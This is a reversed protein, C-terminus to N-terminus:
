PRWRMMVAPRVNWSYSSGVMRVQPVIALHSSLNVTVDIGAMVGTDYVTATYSDEETVPEDVANLPTMLMVLNLGLAAITHRTLQM